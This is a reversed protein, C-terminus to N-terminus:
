PSRVPPQGEVVIWHAGETVVISQKFGSPWHVVAQKLSEEGLGFHIRTSNTSAYSGGGTLQRIQIGKDTKLEVTAGIPTRSSTTGILEIVLWGFGNKIRNELVAAPENSHVIVLDPDGDNDLDGKAVGRGMRPKQFYDGAVDAVNTMRRGRHNELLIPKQKLPSNVPFRIVHGNAVFIDEDGDGDFDAFVTGWGVYLGGLATVGLQRSAHTYGTRGDNRYLAFSEREYNAVWLDLRGDRNFDGVAVGMSGDSNGIAGRSTGNDDAIEKLIGRGTNHYFFNPENDNAVYIDLNRDLDFDALVVGLGKGGRKLGATQPANSFRGDGTSLYLSDTLGAFRRPPCIERQGPEPGQCLPNNKWSWDVYRTVFLDLNGDGDVDGWGASSSWAKDSLGAASSRERFTGDGQNEFLAPSGYGTVLFDTFGDHNYDAACIGHNYVPTKSVRAPGTSEVYRWAGDNRFVAVPRGALRNESITGGGAFFLDIRGDLDYDFLGAGGGLSEVITALESEEGNRYTFRVGSAAARERFGGALASGGASQKGYREGRKTGTSTDAPVTSATKGQSCGVALLLTLICRVSFRSLLRLENQRPQHLLQNVTRSATTMLKHSECVGLM